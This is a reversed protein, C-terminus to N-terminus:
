PQYKFYYSWDSGSLQPHRLVFGKPVNYQTGTVILIVEHMMTIGIDECYDKTSFLNSNIGGGPTQCITELDSCRHMGELHLRVYGSDRREIWWNQWDSEFSLNPATSSFIQKYKGDERIIITDLNGNAYDAVWTGILDDESFSKPLAPCIIKAKNQEELADSCASLAFVLATLIMLRTLKGVM